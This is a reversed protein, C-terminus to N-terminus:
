SCGLTHLSDGLKLLWRVATEGAFSSWFWRGGLDVKVSVYFTPTGLLVDMLYNVEIPESFTIVELKVVKNVKLSISPHCCTSIKKGFNALVM